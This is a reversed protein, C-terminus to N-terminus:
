NDISEASELMSEIFIGYGRTPDNVFVHTVAGILKGNQVIPSGSMGQIIGGTANLLDQDIVHVVMNRNGESYSIKEIEVEYKEATNGDITTWIEAKGIVVEQAFGIEMAEGKFDTRTTGYIGNEGNILISGIALTGVFKGKLEGPSGATGAQYGTIECDMIEGTRLAVSTGTDSDSISHGLGAFVGTAENVFTLTGVGASSDRAWLGIMFKGDESKIATLATSYQAGERIYIVEVATGDSKEVADAVDQNTNVEEGNIQVILDGLELGAQKAPNAQGYQTYLDTFGVVLAGESLMKIGFPTGCVTVVPRETVVMRVTKVPIKGMISLTTNYSGVHMTSGASAVGGSELVSIYPLRAIQMSQNQEVYITDPLTYNLWGIGVICAISIYSTFISIKRIFSGIVSRKKKQKGKKSLMNGGYNTPAVYM